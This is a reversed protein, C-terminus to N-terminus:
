EQGCQLLVKVEDDLIQMLRHFITVRDFDLHANLIAEVNLELVGLGVVMQLVNYDAFDVEFEDADLDLV